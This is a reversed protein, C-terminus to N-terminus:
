NQKIIDVWDTVRSGGTVFLPLGPNFMELTASTPAAGIPTTAAGAGPPGQLPLNISEGDLLLTRQFGEAGYRLTWVDGHAFVDIYVVVLIDEIPLQRAYVQAVTPHTWRGLSANWDLPVFMTGSPVGLTTHWRQVNREFERFVHEDQVTGVDKPVGYTLNSGIYTQTQYDQLIRQTGGIDMIGGPARRTSEGWGVRPNSEWEGFDPDYVVTPAGYVPARLSDVLAVTADHEGQTVNRRNREGIAEESWNVNLRHRNLADLQDPTFRNGYAAGFINVSEIVGTGSLQYLNLPTLFASGDINRATNDVSFSGDANQAVRGLLYFSPLIELRAGESRFMGITTIDYLVNAGVALQEDRYQPIVNFGATLPGRLARGGLESWARFNPDNVALWPRTGYADMVITGSLPRQRGSMFNADRIQTTDTLRIWNDRAFPHPTRYSYRQWGDALTQTFPGVFVGRVDVIDTFYHNQRRLDVDRSLGRIVGTYGFDLTMASVVVGIVTDDTLRIRPRLTVAADSLRVTFQVALVDNQDEVIDLDAMRLVYDGNQADGVSIELEAARLNAGYITLTFRRENDVNLDFGAWAGVAPLTVGNTTVNTILSSQLPLAGSWVAPNVEFTTRSTGFDDVTHKFTNSFRVDTTDQLVYGGVRGVVDVYWSRWAGSEAFQNTGSRVLNTIEWRPAESIVAPVGGHGTGERANVAVVAYRINTLSAEDNVLPVYFDFFTKYMDRYIETGFNSWNQVHYAAAQNGNWAAGSVGRNGQRRGGLGDDANTVGSSYTGREGLIIWTGAPYYTGDYLVDFTYRVYKGRVFRITEMDNYYGRGTAAQPVRLQANTSTRFNGTTGTHLTFDWDLSVFESATAVGTATNIIARNHLADNMCAVWCFEDIGCVGRHHPETCGDNNVSAYCVSTCVHINYEGECLWVPNPVGGFLTQPMTRWLADPLEVVMAFTLPEIGVPLANYVQDGLRQRLTDATIVLNNFDRLTGFLHNGSNSPGLHSLGHDHANNGGVHAITNVQCGIGCSTSGALRELMISSMRVDDTPTFAPASAGSWDGLYFHGGIDSANVRMTSAAGNRPTLARLTGNVWIRSASMNGTDLEVTLRDGSNFVGSMEMFGTRGSLRIRITGTAPNLTVGYGEFGFLMQEPSASNYVINGTTIRYNMNARFNAGIQSLRVGSRGSGGSSLGTGTLHYNGALTLSGAYLSNAAANAVTNGSGIFNLQLFTMNRSYQCINAAFNCLRALGPCPVHDRDRLAMLSSQGATRQDRWAQIPMIGADGATVPTHIIVPNLGTIGQNAEERTYSARMIFGSAPTGARLSGIHRQTPSNIATVTDFAGTPNQVGDLIFPLGIGVGAHNPRNRTPAIYREGTRAGTLEVAPNYMQTNTLGNMSVTNTHDFNYRISGFGRTFQDIQANRAQQAGFAERGRSDVFWDTMLTRGRAATHLTTNRDTQGYNGLLEPHRVFRNNVLYVARERNPATPEIFPGYHDRNSSDRWQVLTEWFLEAEGPMYIRNAAFLNIPTVNYMLSRQVPSSATPNSSLHHLIRMQNQSGFGIYANVNRGNINVGGFHTNHLTGQNEFSSNTVQARGIALVNNIEDNRGRLREQVDNTNSNMGFVGQYSGMYMSDHLPAAANTSRAHWANPNYVDTSRAAGRTTAWMHDFPIRVDPIRNAVNVLHPTTTPLGGTRANPEANRYHYLVSQLGDPLELILADSIVTAQLREQRKARMALWEPTTQVWPGTIANTYAMFFCDTNYPNGAHVLNFNLLQNRLTTIEPSNFRNNIHQRPSRTGNLVYPHGWIRTRVNGPGLTSGDHANLRMDNYRFAAGHGPNDWDRNVPQMVPGINTFAGAPIGTQPARYTYIIGNVTRNLVDEYAPLLMGQHSLTGAVNANINYVSSNPQMGVSQFVGQGQWGRTTTSGTQAIGGWQGTRSANRYSLSVSFGESIRNLQAWDVIPTAPYGNSVNWTFDNLFTNTSNGIGNAISLATGATVAADGYSGWGDYIFGGAWPLLHAARGRWRARPADWEVWSRKDLNTPYGRATGDCRNTRPGFNYVVNDGANNANTLGLLGNGGSGAVSNLENPFATVNRNINGVPYVPLTITPGKATLVGNDANTLYYRVRGAEASRTAGMLTHWGFANSRFYENTAHHVDRTGDTQWGMYDFINAQAIHLLVGPYFAQRTVGLYDTGILDRLGNRQLTTDRAAGQDLRLISLGIIKTYDYNFTQQWTDHIPPLRHGCCPGCLIHEQVTFGASLTVSSPGGISASAVAPICAGWGWSCPITLIECIVVPECVPHPCEYDCVYDWDCEYDDGPGCFHSPCQHCVHPCGAMPHGHSAGSTAASRTTYSLSFNFGFTGSTAGPQMSVATGDGGGGQVGPAWRPDTFRVEVNRFFTQGELLDSTGGSQSVQGNIAALGIPVDTPVRPDQILNTGTLNTVWTGGLGITGQTMPGGTINALAGSNGNPQFVQTSGGTYRHGGLLRASVLRLDSTNRTRGDSGAVFPRSQVLFQATAIIWNVAEDMAATLALLDGRNPNAHQVAYVGLQPPGHPYCGTSISATGTNYGISLTRSIQFNGGWHNWSHNNSFGQGAIPWGAFLADQPIDGGHLGGNLNTAVRNFVCDVGTFVSQSVRVATENPVYQVAIDIIFESGGVALYLKETTPIGAMVEYDETIVGAGDSRVGDFVGAGTDVPSLGDGLGTIGQLPTPWIDGPENRSSQGWNKLEAYAEPASSFVAFPYPDKRLQYTPPNFEFVCRTCGLNGETHYQIIYSQEAARFRGEADQAFIVPLAGLNMPGAYNTISSPRLAWHPYVWDNLNNNNWYEGGVGNWTNWYQVYQAWVNSLTTGTLNATLIPNGNIDTVVSNGDVDLTGTFWVGDPGAHNTPDFEPWIPANRYDVTFWSTPSSQPALRLQFELAYSFQVMYVLTHNASHRYITAGGAGDEVVTYSDTCMDPQAPWPLSDLFVTDSYDFLLGGSRLFNMLDNVSGVDQWGGEPQNDAWNDTSIGGLNINLPIEIRESVLAGGGAIDWDTGATWDIFGHGGLTDMPSPQAGTAIPTRAPTSLAWNEVCSNHQSYRACLYVARTCVVGTNACNSTCLPNSPCLPLASATAITVGTHQATTTVGVGAVSVQHQGGFFSCEIGNWTGYCREPGQHVVDAAGVWYRVAALQVSRDVYVRAQVRTNNLLEEGEPTNTAERLRAEFTDLGEDSNYAMLLDWDMDTGVYGGIRIPYPFRGSGNPEVNERIPDGRWVGLEWGTVDAGAGTAASRAAVNENWRQETVIHISQYLFQLQARKPPTNCQVGAFAFTYGQGGLLESNLGSGRLTATGSDSVGRIMILNDSVGARGLSTGVAGYLNSSSYEYSGTSKFGSLAWALDGVPPNYGGVTFRAAINTGAPVNPRRFGTGLHRWALRDSDEGVAVGFVAGADLHPIWASTGDLYLAGTWWGHMTTDLAAHMWLPKDRFNQYGPFELVNWEAFTGRRNGVDTHISTIWAYFPAMAIAGELQAAPNHIFLREFVLVSKAEVQSVCEAFMGNFKFFDIAANRYANRQLNNDLANERQAVVALTILKDLYAAINNRVLESPMFDCCSGDFNCKNVCGSATCNVIGCCSANLVPAGWGPFDNLNGGSLHKLGDRTIIANDWNFEKDEEYDFIYGIRDSMLWFNSTGPRVSQQVGGAIWYWLASAALANTSNTSSATILAEFFEDPRVDRDGEFWRTMYDKIVEKFLGQGPVWGSGGIVSGIESPTADRYSNFKARVTDADQTTGAGRMFISQTSGYLIVNTATAGQPLFYVSYAGLGASVSAPQATSGAPSPANSSINRALTVGGAGFRVRHPVWQNIRATVPTPPDENNRPRAARHIGAWRLNAGFMLLSNQVDERDWSIQTRRSRQGYAWSVSAQLNGDVRDVIYNGDKDYNSWMVGSFGALEGVLPGDDVLQWLENNSMLWEPDNVLFIALNGGPYGVMGDSVVNSRSTGHGSNIAGSASGPGSAFVTM